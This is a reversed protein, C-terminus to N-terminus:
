ASKMQPLVETKIPEVQINEIVIDEAHIRLSEGNFIEAVRRLNIMRALTFINKGEIAITLGESEFLFVERDDSLRGFQPCRIGLLSNFFDRM